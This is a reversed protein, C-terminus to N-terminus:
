QHSLVNLQETAIPSNASKIRNKQHSGPAIPKMM